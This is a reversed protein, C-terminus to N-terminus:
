AGDHREGDYYREVANAVMATAAILALEKVRSKERPSIAARHKALQMAFEAVRNAGHSATHRGIRLPTVLATDCADCCRGDLPRASNGNGEYPNGCISCANTERDKV